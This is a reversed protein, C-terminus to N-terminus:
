APEKEKEVVNTDVIEEEVFIIEYLWGREIRSKIRKVSRIIRQAVRLSKFFAAEKWVKTVTWRVNQGDEEELRRVYHPDGHDDTEAEPAWLRVFLYSLHSM